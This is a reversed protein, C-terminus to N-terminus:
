HYHSDMEGARIAVGLTNGKPPIPCNYHDSFACAPNYAFNFDLLFKGDPLKKVDVYRGLAYSGKGTTADRFFIGLDNEGVGPELLRDAELRCPVGDVLFDFWGVRQAHRQNGRTSMIVVTEPKPNPTLALEFRYALDPPFYKLGKYAKFRPSEPDFVIIAPFRQHSLRLLFRGVQVNSPDVLADRKEDKGIMFSAAPDVAQVHFRDGDVTVRLHHPAFAAADIRLDNDAARGVTMTKSAGFDRRDITALYSTPDSQLWKQTDARDKEIDKLAAAAAATSLRVPGSRSGADAPKPAARLRGNGPQQATTSASAVLAVSLAFALRTETLTALAM